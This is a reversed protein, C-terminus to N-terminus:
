IIFYVAILGTTSASQIMLNVISIAEKNVVKGVYVLNFWIAIFWLITKVIIM